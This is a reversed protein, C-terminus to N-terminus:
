MEFANEIYNIKRELTYVECVDFSIDEYDNFNMIFARAARIIRQQKTFNVADSAFGFRTDKRTKVEIFALHMNKRAIIDIECGAAKYNTAIIEYGWSKIYDIAVKEGERGIYGTNM